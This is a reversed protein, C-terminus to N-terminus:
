APPYYGAQELWYDRGDMGGVERAIEEGLRHQDPAEKFLLAASGLGRVYLPFDAAVQKLIDSMRENLFDPYALIRGTKVHLFIEYGDTDAIKVLHPPREGEGWWAFGFEDRSNMDVLEACYDGRCGFGTTGIILRGFDYQTILDTFSPLFKVALASECEQVRHAPLSIARLRRESLGPGWPLFQKDLRARIEDFSLLM